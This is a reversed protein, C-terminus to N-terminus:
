IKMRWLGSWNWPNQVLAYLLHNTPDYDLYWVGWGKNNNQSPTPPPLPVASWTTLDAETGHVIAHAYGDGLFIEGGAVALAVYYSGLQPVNPVKTWHQGDTSRLLGAPNNAALYYAGSPSPRFARMTYEGGTAGRVGMPEVNAFTKGGNTTLYMGDGLTVHLWSSGNLIYPGTQEQWDGVPMGTQSSIVPVAIPTWDNGGSYTELDCIPSSTGM